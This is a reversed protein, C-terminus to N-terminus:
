SIAELARAALVAAVARRYEGSGRFDGPPDLRAIAALGPVLVPAAAVGAFGPRRGHEDVAAEDGSVHKEGRLGVAM